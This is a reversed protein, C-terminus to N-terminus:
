FFYNYSVPTHKKVAFINIGDLLWRMEESTITVTSDADGRKPWPFKETELKKIWLAFGTKDWYLLRIQERGRSAFVFLGGGCPAKDFQSAVVAVLGSAYKRFDM